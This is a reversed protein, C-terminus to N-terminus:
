GPSLGQVALKMMLFSSGWAAGLLVFRVVGGVPTM